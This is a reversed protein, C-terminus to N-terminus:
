VFMKEIMSTPRANRRLVKDQLARKKKIEEIASLGEFISEKRPKRYTKVIKPAEVRPRHIMDTGQTKRALDEDFVYWLRGKSKVKSELEGLTRAYIVESYRYQNEILDLYSWNYGHKRNIIVGFYGTDNNRRIWGMQRSMTFTLRKIIEKETDSCCRLANSLDFTNNDIQSLIEANLVSEIAHKFEFNKFPSQFYRRIALDINDTFMYSSSMTDRIM